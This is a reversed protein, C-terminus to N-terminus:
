SNPLRSSRSGRLRIKFNLSTSSDVRLASLFKGPPPNDSKRPRPVAMFRAGRAGWQKEIERAQNCNLQFWPTDRRFRPPPPLHVHLCYVRSQRFPRTIVNRTEGAILVSQSAYTTDHALPVIRFPLLPPPRPTTAQKEDDLSHRTHSLVSIHCPKIFSM